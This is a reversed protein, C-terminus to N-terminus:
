KRQIYHFQNEFYRLNWSFWNDLEDLTKPYSQHPLPNLALSHHQPLPFDSSTLWNAVMPLHIHNIDSDNSTVFGSTFSNSALKSGSNFTYFNSGEEVFQPRDNNVKKLPISDFHFHPHASSGGDYYVGHKVSEKEDNGDYSNALNEDYRYPEWECRLWQTINSHNLNVPKIYFRLRLGGFVWIHQGPKYKSIDSDFLKLIKLRWDEKANISLKFWEEEFALYLNYSTGMELAVASETKGRESTVTVIDKHEIDDILIQTTYGDAIRTPIISVAGGTTKKLIEMYRASRRTLDSDEIFLLM